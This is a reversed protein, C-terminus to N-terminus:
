WCEFPKDKLICDCIHDLYKNKGPLIEELSDFTYGNFNDAYARKTLNWPIQTKIFYFYAFLEVESKNPIIPSIEGFLIKRYEELTLPEHAFGIRGYPAKGTIIVPIDCLLMELGLTGNYVIGLDIYPFLEYTKIKMEPLILTINEPLIPYRDYIYDAIGKLSTTSDYKEAPHPKIYLNIDDRNKLIEITQLVWAIVDNFLQGSESMGVDWFVSSFLFINRKTEDFKFIEDINDKSEFCGYERFIDSEGRFRSEVFKQLELKEERALLNNGRAELYRLYRNPSKYLEMINFVVSHYNFPTISVTFLETHGNKGFYKYYPEAVSYIFMNNLIIDPSFFKDIREAAEIGIMSSILHKKRVGKLREGGSPVAGYYYRTLSDNVIPIINIGNYFNESPYDEVISAAIKGFSEVESQSILESLKLIDIGYMSVTHQYNFRCYICPDKFKLNKVSKMECGDLRSDCLLIKVEAGRLQLAKALIFMQYYQYHSTEIQPLLIRKSKEDPRRIYQRNIPRLQKKLIKKLKWAFKVRLKFRLLFPFQLLIRNIKIKITKVM